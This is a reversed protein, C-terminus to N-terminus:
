NGELYADLRDFTGTWGQRMSAMGEAFTQREIETAEYPSWQITILTNPGFDAFRVTTKM